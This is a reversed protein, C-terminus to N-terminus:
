ETAGDLTKIAKEVWAKDFGREAAIRGIEGNRREREAKELQIRELETEREALERQEGESPPFEARCRACVEARAPSMAGCEACYKVPAEGIKVREELSWEVPAEPLGLRWTNGAHDLVLPRMGTSDPRSGRGCMQRYLTLSRTPRALIICKVPPCDVGETLIGVNVVVQTRGSALDSLIKTRERDPTKWDLVASTAGSRRFRNALQEAHDITCAYVVTPRGGALRHWEKVINAMLPRRRMLGDLERVSYDGGSRFKLGGVLAAAKERSIGYVVSEMIHGDAILEGAEAVVNLYDFVDGLPKGDLRWPTATLGLCPVDPMSELLSAYSKAVAHHCEDVVVLGVNDPVPCNRFMGVGAVLIPADPNIVEAGSLIGVWAEPLGATILQARAQRLLEVRHALWLVRGGQRRLMRRAMVAGVVTKGSGTPAIAIIRRHELFLGTLNRVAREQYVRLKMQESGQNAANVLCYM